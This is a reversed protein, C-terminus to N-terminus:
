LSNRMVSNGLCSLWASSGISHTTVKGTLLPINTAERRAEGGKRCAVLDPFPMDPMQTSQRCEAIRIVKSVAASAAVALDAYSAVAVIRPASALYVSCDRARICHRMSRNVTVRVPMPVRGRPEACVTRVKVVFWSVSL